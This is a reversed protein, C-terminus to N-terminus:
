SERAMGLLYAIRSKQDPDSKTAESFAVLDRRHYYSTCGLRRVLDDLIGFEHLTRVEYATYGLIAGIQHPFVIGSDETNGM